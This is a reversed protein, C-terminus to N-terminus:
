EQTIASLFTMVAEAKISTLHDSGGRVVIGGFKVSVTFDKEVFAFVPAGSMGDPKTLSGHVQIWRATTSDFSDGSYNCFIERRQTNIKRLRFDDNGTEDFDLDQDCSAYGFVKAGSVLDGHELVGVAGIDLFNIEDIRGELTPSTFEFACLDYVDLEVFNATSGSFFYGENTIISGSTKILSATELGRNRTQHKCAVAFYRGKIKILTASGCLNLPCLCDDNYFCLPSACNRLVSSLFEHPVLINAYKLSGLLRFGMFTDLGIRGNLSSM